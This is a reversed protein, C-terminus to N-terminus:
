LDKCTRSKGWNRGIELGTNRLYIHICFNKSMVNLVKYRVKKKARYQRESWGKFVTNGFKKIM